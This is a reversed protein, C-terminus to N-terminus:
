RLNWCLMQYDDGAAIEDSGPSFFAGGYQTLYAGCKGLTVRNDYIKRGHYVVDYGEQGGVVPICGAPTQGRTADVWRMDSTFPLLDFNNSTQRAGGYPAEASGSSISDSLSGPVYLDGGLILTAIYLPSDPDLSPGFRTQDGLVGNRIAVRNGYPSVCLGSITPGITDSNCAIASDYFPSSSTSDCTAVPDCANTNSNSLYNSDCKLTASGDCLGNAPCPICAGGYFLSPNGSSDTCSGCTNTADNYAPTSSTADCKVVM